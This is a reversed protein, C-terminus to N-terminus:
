SALLHCPWIKTMWMRRDHSPCCKRGNRVPIRSSHNRLRSYGQPISTYVLSGKVRCQTRRCCREDSDVRKVAYLPSKFKLGTGKAAVFVGGKSCERTQSHTPPTLFLSVLYWTLTKIERNYWLSKGVSNSDSIQGKFYKQHFVTCVEDEVVPITKIMKPSFLESLKWNSFCGPLWSM